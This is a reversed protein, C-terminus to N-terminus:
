PSHDHFCKRIYQRKDNEREHGDSTRSSKHVLIRLWHLKGIKVVAEWCFSSQCVRSYTINIRPRTRPSNNKHMSERAVRPEPTVVNALQCFLKADDGNIEGSVSFRLLPHVRIVHLEKSFGDEVKEITQSDFLHVINTVGHPSLDSHCQSYSM